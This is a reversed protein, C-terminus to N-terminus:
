RRGRAWGGGSTACWGTACGGTVWLKRVSGHPQSTAAVVSVVHRRASNQGGFGNVMGDTPPAGGLSWGTASRVTDGGAKLVSAGSRTM